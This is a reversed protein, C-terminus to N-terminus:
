KYKGVPEFKSSWLIVTKDAAGSAFLKGNNSTALCFVNEKHGLIYFFHINCIFKVFRIIFYKNSLNYSYFYFFFFILLFIIYRFKLHM